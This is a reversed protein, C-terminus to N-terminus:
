GSAVIVIAYVGRLLTEAALVMALGEAGADGTAKISEKPGSLSGGLHNCLKGATHLGRNSATSHNLSVVDLVGKMLNEVTGTWGMAVKIATLSKKAAAESLGGKVFWKANLQFFQRMKGFYLLIKNAVNYWKKNYGSFYSTASSLLSSVWRMCDVEYKSGFFSDPNLDDFDKIWAFVMRLITGIGSALRLFFEMDIGGDGGVLRAPTLLTGQAYRASFAPPSFADKFEDLSGFALIRNVSQDEKFPAEQKVLKFGMTVPFAAVFAIVGTISLDDGGTLKNFLWSVVPIYLSGSLLERLAKIGAVVLDFMAMAMNKYSDVLAIGIIGLLRDVIQQFSLTRFQDIVNKKLSDYASEITGVESSVLDKFADLAAHFGTDDGPSDSFLKSDAAGGSANRANNKLHHMAVNSAAESVGGGGMNSADATTVNFGDLGAVKGIESEVSDFMSAVSGKLQELNNEFFSATDDVCLDLFHRLVKYSRVIDDYEFIFKLFAIVKEIAVKVANYVWKIAAGLAEVTDLVAKYCLDGVQAVFHYVATAVDWVVSCVASAFHEVDSELASLLDGIHHFFTGIGGVPRPPPSRCLHLARGQLVLHDQAKALSRNMEAMQDLTEDTTEDPLFPVKTGDDQTITAKRLSDATTLSSNRDFAHAMPNAVVGGEQGAASLVGAVPALEVHFHTAVLEHTLEIITVTGTGDVPVRVPYNPGVPHYVNNITVATVTSSTVLVETGQAATFGTGTETLKIETTFSHFESADQTLSSPPLTIPKRTWMTTAPTQTHKNLGLGSHAFFTNAAFRRNVYPAIADVGALIPGPPLYWMSAEGTRSIDLKPCTLYFVEGSSNLGWVTVLSVGEGDAEEAAHLERVGGLMKSTAIKVATATDDQNDATFLYLGGSAAVYLDSFDADVDGDISRAVALATPVADVDPLQLRNVTPPTRPDFDNYLPVYSIQTADDVRGITYVGDVTEGSARGIASQYTGVQIDADLPARRWVPTSRDSVDIWYRDVLSTANPQQREVDVMIYEGSRAQGLMIKNVRLPSPAAIPSGSSDTGNFPAKTWTMNETWAMDSSSNNLSLYLTSQGAAEVSMAVHVERLADGQRQSVAFTGVSAEGGFDQAIVSNSLSRVAWGHSSVGTEEVAANLEGEPSVSFLLSNGTDSQVAAFEKQPQMISHQHYNTM